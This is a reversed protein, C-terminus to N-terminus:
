KDLLNTFILMLEHIRMKCTVTSALTTKATVFSWLKSAESLLYEKCCLPSSLGVNSTPKTEPAIGQVPQRRTRSICGKVTFTVRPILLHLAPPALLSELYRKNSVLGTLDLGGGWSKM